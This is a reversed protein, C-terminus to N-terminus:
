KNGTELADNLDETADVRKSYVPKTGAVLLRITRSFMGQLHFSNIYACAPM